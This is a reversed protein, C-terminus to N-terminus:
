TAPEVPLERVVVQPRRGSFRRLLRKTGISGLAGVAFVVPAAAGGTLAVLGAGLLVGTGTAVAGTAAETAVHVAAGRRDMTGARVAPAAEVGAVAGDIVMGVGAAKGAGKLLEVGAARAAAPGVARVAKGTTALLEIPRKAIEAAPGLLPGTAVALASAATREAAGRVLDKASQDLLLKGGAEFLAVSSAIARAAAGGAIVARLADSFTRPDATKDDADSPSPM